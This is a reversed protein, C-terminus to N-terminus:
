FWLTVKGHITIQRSEDVDKGFSVEEDILPTIDKISIGLQKAMISAKKKANEVAMEVVQKKLKERSADTFGFSVVGDQALKDETKGEVGGEKGLVSYPQAAATPTSGQSTPDGAKGFVTNNGLEARSSIGPPVVTNAVLEAGNKVAESVVGIIEDTYIFLNQVDLTINQTVKYEYMPIKRIYAGTVPDYFTEGGAVMDSRAGYGPNYDEKKYGVLVQEVKPTGWKKVDVVTSGRIPGKKYLAIRQLTKMLYIIKQNTNETATKIVKDRTSITMQVFAIDPIAKIESEGKVSMSKTKDVRNQPTIEKVLTMKSDGWTFGDNLGKPSGQDSFEKGVLGKDKINSKDGPNEGKAMNPMEQKVVPVKDKTEVLPNKVGDRKENQVEVPKDAEKPRVSEDPALSVEVPLTEQIAEFTIYSLTIFLSLHFGLAIFFSLTSSTIKTSVGSTGVKM